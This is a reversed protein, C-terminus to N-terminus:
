DFVLAALGADIFREAFDPLVQEKVGSLGHAMVVIPFTTEDEVDDPLYLWGRCKLGKSDFSVEERMSEKM